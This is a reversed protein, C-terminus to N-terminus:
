SKGEGRETSPAALMAQQEIRWEPEGKVVPPEDEPSEVQFEGSKLTACAVSGDEVMAEDLKDIFEKRDEAFHPIDSDTPPCLWNDEGSPGEWHLLGNYHNGAAYWRLCRRLNHNEQALKGNAERLVMADTPTCGEPAGTASPQTNLLRLIDGRDLQNGKSDEIWHDSEEKMMHFPPHFAFGNSMISDPKEQPAKATDPQVSESQASRLLPNEEDSYGSKKVADAFKAKAEAETQFAWLECNTESLYIKWNGNYKAIRGGFVGFADLRDFEQWDTAPTDNQVSARAPSKNLRVLEDFAVAALRSEKLAEARLWEFADAKEQQTANIPSDWAVEQPQADRLALIDQFCDEAATRYVEWAKKDDGYNRSNCRRRECIELAQTFAERATM